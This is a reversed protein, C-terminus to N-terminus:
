KIIGNKGPAIKKGNKGPAITKAAPAKTHPPGSLCLFFQKKKIFNQFFIDCSFECVFKRNKKTNREGGGSSSSSSSVGTAESQAAMPASAGLVLLKRENGKM